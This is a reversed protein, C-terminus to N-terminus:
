VRLPRAAFSPLAPSRPGPHGDLCDFAAVNRVARTCLTEILPRRLPVVEQWLQWAIRYDDPDDLRAQDIPTLQSVIVGQSSLYIGRGEIVKLADFDLLHGDEASEGYANFWFVRQPELWELYGVLHQGCPPEPLTMIAGAAVLRQTALVAHNVALL